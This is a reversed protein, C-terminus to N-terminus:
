IYEWFKVWAEKEAATTIDRATFDLFREGRPGREYVGHLYVFERTPDDEIDSYLEYSVCPFHVKNYIVPQKNVKYIKARTVIKNLTAEGIGKLFSKDKKKKALLTEMDLALLDDIKNTGLDNFLTDRKSRGVYFLGTLDDNDKVWKNCSDYWPCLKCSGAMAPINQKENTILAEVDAKINKYLQWYTINKVKGIITNLDYLVERGKVDLIFGQRNNEFGLQNLVDIYLALQVAYNEKLKGEETNADEGELGMGSKIDMPLYYGAPALKLIDPIGMLNNKILVGQFILPTKNEMAEITKAFREAFTGQSLDLVQGINAIIEKEYVVGRDWLLQV